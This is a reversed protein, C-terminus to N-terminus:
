CIKVLKIEGFHNEVITLDSKKNIHNMHRLCVRVTVFKNKAYDIKFRYIACNIFWNNSFFTIYKIINKIIAVYFLKDVTIKISYLLPIPLVFWLHFSPTSSSYFKDDVFMHKIPWFDFNQIQETGQRKLSLTYSTSYLFYEEDIENGTGTVGVHTSYVTNTLVTLYSTWLLHSFNKFIQNSSLYSVKDGQLTNKINELFCKIILVFMNTYEIM